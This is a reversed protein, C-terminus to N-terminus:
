SQAEVSASKADESDEKKKESERVKDRITTMAGKVGEVLEATRKKIDQAFTGGLKAIRKVADVSNWPLKVSQAAVMSSVVDVVTEYQNHTLVHLRNGLIDYREGTEMNVIMGAKGFRAPQALIAAKADELTKWGMPDFEIRFPRAMKGPIKGKAVSQTKKQYATKIKPKKIKKVM